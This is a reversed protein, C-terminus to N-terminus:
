LNADERLAARLKELAHFLNAKVTGEAIGLTLAIDKLAMDGHHRLLFVEKERPPLREIARRVAEATEGAEMASEPAADLRRDPLRESLSAHDETERARRLFSWRQWSRVTNVAIQLLWSDFASEGRFSAIGKWAV